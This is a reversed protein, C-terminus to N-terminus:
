SWCSRSARWPATGQAALARAAVTTQVDPPAYMARAYASAGVDSGYSRAWSRWTSDLVQYAGSASSHRNQATWVLPGDPRGSSECGGIRRLLAGPEVTAAAPRVYSRSVRRITTPPAPPPAPPATTTPAESTTTAPPATSTTAPATTSTTGVVAVPTVDGAGCAALALACAAVTLTRPLPM